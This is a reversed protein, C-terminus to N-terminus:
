KKNVINVNLHSGPSPKPNLNGKFKAYPNNVGKFNINIRHCKKAVAALKLIQEKGYLPM